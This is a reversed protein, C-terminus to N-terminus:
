KKEGKIPDERGLLEEVPDFAIWAGIPLGKL